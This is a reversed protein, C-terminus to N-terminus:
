LLPFNQLLKEGENRTGSQGVGGAKGEELGIYIGISGLMAVQARFFSVTLEQSVNADVSSDV